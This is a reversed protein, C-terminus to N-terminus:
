AQTCLREVFYFIIHGCVDAQHAAPARTTSMWSVAIAKVERDPDGAKFSDCTM